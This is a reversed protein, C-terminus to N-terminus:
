NAGPGVAIANEGDPAVMVFGVGTHDDTEREVVTRV